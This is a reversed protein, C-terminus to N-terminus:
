RFITCKRSNMKKQGFPAREYGPAPTLMAVKGVYTEAAIKSGLPLIGSPVSELFALGEETPITGSPVVEMGPYSNFDGEGEIFKANLVFGSEPVIVESGDPELMNIEHGTVNVVVVGSPLTYAMSENFKIM